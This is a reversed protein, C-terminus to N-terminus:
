VVALKNAQWLPQLAKLASHMGLRGNLDLVDAQQIALTPRAQYYASDTYPVITNLGDNGGAMQVVILTKSQAAQAWTAGDQAANRAALVARSFVAPMVMGASVALLGDRIMARRTIQM